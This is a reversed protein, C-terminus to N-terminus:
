SAETGNAQIGNGYIGNTSTGNSYIGNNSLANPAVGNPGIGNPGPLALAPAAGWAALIAAFGALVTTKIVIIEQSDPIPRRGL